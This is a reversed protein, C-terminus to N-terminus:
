TPRHRERAGLDDAVLATVVGYLLHLGLREARLSAPANQEGQTIGLLPAVGAINVVYLGAGYLLGLVVTPVGPLNPRLAGYGLGFGAAAAMHNAQELAATGGQGIRRRTGAVRDLWDESDEALTKHLFGTKRGLTMALSMAVGGALGGAVGANLPRM